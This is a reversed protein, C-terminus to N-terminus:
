TCAALTATQPQALDFRNCATVALATFAKQIFKQSFITDFIANYAVTCKDTIQNDLRTINYIHFRELTNMM